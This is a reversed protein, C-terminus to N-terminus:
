ASGCRAPVPAAGAAVTAAPWLARSRFMSFFSPASPARICRRCLLPGWYPSLGGIVHFLFLFIRDAAFLRYRAEVIKHIMIELPLGTLFQEMMDGLATM